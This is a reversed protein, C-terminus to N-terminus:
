SVASAAANFSPRAGIDVANGATMATRQSFYQNDAALDLLSVRPLLRIKLQRATLNSERNCTTHTYTECGGQCQATPGIPGISATLLKFLLM